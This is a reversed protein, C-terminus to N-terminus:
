ESFLARIKGSVVSWVTLIKSLFGPHMVLADASMSSNVSFTAEVSFTANFSVEGDFVTFNPTAITVDFIRQEPNPSRDTHHGFYGNRGAKFDRETTKDVGTIDIDLEPERRNGPNGDDIRAEFSPKGATRPVLSFVRLLGTEGRMLVSQLLQYDPDLYRRTIQLNTLNKAQGDGRTRALIKKIRDM